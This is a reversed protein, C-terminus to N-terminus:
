KKDEKESPKKCENKCKSVDLLLYHTIMMKKMHEPTHFEEMGEPLEKKEHHQHMHEMKEKHMKEMEAFHEAHNDAIAQLSAMTPELATHWEKIKAPDMNKMMDMMDAHGHGHECSKGDKTCKTSDGHACMKGDKHHKCEKSCTKGEGEKHKCEKKCSASDKSCCYGHGHSAHMMLMKNYTEKGLVEEFKLRADAISAKEADTLSTELEKRAACVKHSMGCKNGHKCKGEKKCCKGDKKDGKDANEKAEKDKGEESGCSVMGGAFVFLM